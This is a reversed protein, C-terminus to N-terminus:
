CSMLNQRESNFWDPEHQDLNEVFWVVFKPSSKQSVRVFWWLMSKSQTRMMDINSIQLQWIARKKSKKVLEESFVNGKIQQWLFYTTTM